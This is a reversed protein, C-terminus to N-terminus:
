DDGEGALRYFENLHATEMFQVRRKRQGFNDEVEGEGYGPMLSVLSEVGGVEREWARREVVGFLHGYTELWRDYDNQLDDNLRAVQGPTLLPLMRWVQVYLKQENIERVEVKVLRERYLVELVGENWHQCMVGQGQPHKKLRIYEFRPSHCCGTEDRLPMGAKRLERSRACEIIDGSIYRPHSRNLKRALERYSYRQPPSWYNPAIGSLPRRDRSALYQWLAFAPAGLLAMWFRTTHHAIQSYGAGGREFFGKRYDTEAIRQALSPSRNGNQKEPAAPRPPRAVTFIVGTERGRVGTLARTVKKGLRNEVWERSQASTVGITFVDDEAGALWTNKLHAEFTARTTQGELQTLTHAWAEEPTLTITATM